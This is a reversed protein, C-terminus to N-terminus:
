IKVENRKLLIKYLKTYIFPFYKFLIVKYKNKKSTPYKIAHDMIESPIKKYILQQDKKSLRGYLTTVQFFSWSAYIYASMKIQLELELSDIFEIEKKTIYCADEINTIKPHATCSGKRKVYTYFYTSTQIINCNTALLAKIFFLQDEEYAIGEPFFINNDLLFKRKFFGLWPVVENSNNKISLDLFNRGSLLTNIYPIEKYNDITRKKDEDYIKYQGRIIDLENKMCIDYFKKAFNDCYYDDGDMFCIYEGTSYKIGLNRAVSVGENKKDIIKIFEYKNAYDRCINLSKDTSGDNILIIEMNISSQMLISDICHRLYKEVNYVPVVFSVNIKELRM